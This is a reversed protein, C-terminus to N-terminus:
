LKTDARATVLASIFGKEKVCLLRSLESVRMQNAQRTVTSPVNYVFKPRGLRKSAIKEKAVLQRSMLRNLHQKLTNHSFGEEALLAAFSRPRGDQLATLIREDFFDM